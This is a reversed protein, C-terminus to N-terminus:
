QPGDTKSSGRQVGGHTHSHVVIGNSSFNGGSHEVSGTMKGGQTVEPTATKLLNTCEVVPSGLTIKESATVLVVKTTVSISESAQVTATKMGTATLAGTKPEYEIVAGDPFSYHVADASVSPAPNDDSFISTLVFASDLEDGLSMILVQEGVSPARWFRVGGASSTLWNLWDTENAGTQVRCLGGDLDVATVTGIRILNRLLRQIESHNESINM